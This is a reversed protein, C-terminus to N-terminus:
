HYRKANGESSGESRLKKKYNEIRNESQISLDPKTPSLSNRTEIERCAVDFVSLTSRYYSVSNLFYSKRRPFRNKFRFAQTTPKLSCRVVVDNRKGARDYRRLMILHEIKPAAFSDVRILNFATKKMIRDCLFNCFLVAVNKLFEEEHMMSFHFFGMLPWYILISLYPYHFANRGHGRRHQNSKPTTVMGCTMENAELWQALPGKGSCWRDDIGYDQIQNLSHSCSELTQRSCARGEQWTTPRGPSRKYERPHWEVNIKTWRDDEKRM